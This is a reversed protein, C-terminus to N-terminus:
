REDEIPEVQPRADTPHRAFKNPHIRDGNSPVDDIPAHIRARADDNPEADVTPLVDDIPRCGDTDVPKHSSVARSLVSIM